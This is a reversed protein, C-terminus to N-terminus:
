CSHALNRNESKGYKVFHVLPNMKVEAVDPNAELYRRTDFEKSPNRGEAVGYLLYHEVPNLGSAAVDANEALYWTEDFLGSAKLLKVLKKTDDKKKGSKRFLRIVARVPATMKWSATGKLFTNRQLQKEIEKNKDQLEQKVQQLDQSLIDKEEVAQQNATELKKHAQKMNQHRLFIEELEEQVQHLQLLLLENERTTERNAAEIKQKAQQVKEVQTQRETALKSQEDKTKSLQKIQEQYQKLQDGLNQQTHELQQKQLFTEELEEQVQHLQQLLLENEQQAEKKDAESEQCAQQIQELQAREETNLQKQEHLDKALQDIRSLLQQQRRDQEFRTQEATKLKKITEELEHRLKQENILHRQYHNFIELPEAEPPPINDLPHSSAELEEQLPQVAPKDALWFNAFYHEVSARNAPQIQNRPLTQLEIGFGQCIDILARPQRLSAEADLLITQRRHHRYFKLIHHGASQWDDLFQRPDVGQRCAQTLGAEARSYFLLFKAQPLKASWFDLLWLSRSDALLLPAAPSEPASSAVDTVIPDHVQLPVAKGPMHFFKDHFRTFSEGSSELGAEEFIPMVKEWGSYPIGTAIVIKRSEKLYEPDKFPIVAGEAKQLNHGNTDSANDSLNLRSNELTSLM